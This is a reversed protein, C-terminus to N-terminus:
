GVEVEKSKSACSGTDGSVDWIGPITFTRPTFFVRTLYHCRLSHYLFPFLAHLHLIYIYWLIKGVTAMSLHQWSGRPGGVHAFSLCALVYGHEVWEARKCLCSITEQSLLHWPTAMDSDRPGRVCAHSLRIVRACTTLGRVRTGMTTWVYLLGGVLWLWWVVHYLVFFFSYAYILSFIIHVGHGQGIACACNEWSSGDVFWLWLSQSIHTCFYSLYEQFLPFILCLGCGMSFHFWSHNLPLM